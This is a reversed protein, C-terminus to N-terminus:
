INAPITPAPNSDGPSLIAPSVGARGSKGSFWLMAGLNRNPKMAQVLGDQPRLNSCYNDVLPGAPSMSNSSGVVAPPPPRPDAPSASLM